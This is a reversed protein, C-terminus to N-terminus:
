SQTNSVVFYQQHWFVSAFQCGGTLDWSEYFFISIVVGAYGYCTHECLKQHAWLFPLAANPLLFFIERQLNLHCSCYIFTASCSIHPVCKNPSRKTDLIFVVFSHLRYAKSNFLFMAISCSACISSSCETPTWVRLNDSYGVIVGAVRYM